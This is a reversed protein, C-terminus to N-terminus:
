EVWYRITFDKIIVNRTTSKNLLKIKIGGTSSNTLSVVQNHTLNYSVSNIIATMTLDTLANQGDDEYESNIRIRIANYTKNELAIYKTQLFESPEVKYYGNESIYESGTSTNDIFRDNWFGEIFLNHANFVRFDEYESLTSGLVNTGLVGGLPSGLIFAATLDTGWKGDGWIGYTINGWILFEGAVIQKKATIRSNWIEAIQPQEVPFVESDVSKRGVQAIADGTKNAQKAIFEITNFTM